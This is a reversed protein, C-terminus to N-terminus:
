STREFGIQLELLLLEAPVPLPESLRVLQAKGINGLRKPRQQFLGLLM